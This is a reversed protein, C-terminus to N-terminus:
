RPRRKQKTKIPWGLERLKQKNAEIWALETDNLKLDKHKKGRAPKKSGTQKPPECSSEITRNIVRDDASSPARTSPIYTSRHPKIVPRKKAPKELKQDVVRYYDSFKSVSVSSTEGNELEIKYLKLGGRGDVHKTITGSGFYIHKVKTKVPILDVM